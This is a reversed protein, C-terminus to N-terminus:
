YIGNCRRSKTSGKTTFSAIQENSSNFINWTYEVDNIGQQSINPLCYIDLGATSCAFYVTPKPLPIIMSVNEKDNTQMNNVELTVNYSKGYKSFEHSVINTDTTEEANDDFNWNYTLSAGNTAAAPTFFTYLLANDISASARMTSNIIESSSGSGDGGSGDGGNGGSSGGDTINGSNGSNNSSTESCGAALMIATITIIILKYLKSM